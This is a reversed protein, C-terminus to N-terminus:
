NQIFKTTTPTYSGDAETTNLQLRYRQGTDGKKYFSIRYGKETVLANGSNIKEPNVLDAAAILDKDVTLVLQDGNGQTVKVKSWDIQTNWGLHNELNRPQSLIYKVETASLDTAELKEKSDATDKKVVNGDRYVRTVQFQLVENLFKEADKIKTADIAKDFTLALNSGDAAVEVSKVTKGKL